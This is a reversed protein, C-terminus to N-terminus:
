RKWVFFFWFKFINVHCLFLLLEFEKCFEKGAIRHWFEYYYIYIYYVPYEGWSLTKLSAHKTKECSREGGLDEKDTEVPWEKM